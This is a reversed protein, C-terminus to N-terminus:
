SVPTIEPAKSNMLCSKASSEGKMFPMMTLVKNTPATTPAIDPPGRESRKPRLGVASRAATMKPNPAKATAKAGLTANM